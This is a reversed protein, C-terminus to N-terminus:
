ANPKEKLTFVPSCHRLDQHVDINVPLLAQPFIQVEAIEAEETYPMKRM